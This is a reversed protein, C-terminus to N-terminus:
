NRAAMLKNYCDDCVRMMQEDPTDEWGNDKREAQIQDNGWGTSDTFSGKCVACTYDRQYEM